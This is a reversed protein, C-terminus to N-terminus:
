LADLEEESFTDFRKKLDKKQREFAKRGAELIERNECEVAFRVRFTAADSCRPQRMGMGSPPSVWYEITIRSAGYDLLEKRFVIPPIVRPNDSWKDPRTRADPEGYKKVVMKMLTEFEGDVEAQTYVLDPDDATSQSLASSNLGSTAVYNVNTMTVDKRMRVSSLKGSSWTLTAADFGRFPKRLFVDRSARSSMTRRVTLGGTTDSPVHGLTDQMSGGLKFGCFTDVAQGAPLSWAAAILIAAALMQLTTRTNMEHNRQMDDM